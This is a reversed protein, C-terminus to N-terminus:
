RVPMYSFFITLIAYLATATAILKATTVLWRSGASITLLVGSLLFGYTAIVGILGLQIKAFTLINLETIGKLGIAPLNSPMFVAFLMETFAWAMLMLVLGGAVYALRKAISRWAASRDKAKKPRRQEILVAVSRYEAVFAHVVGALVFLWSMALLRNALLVLENM